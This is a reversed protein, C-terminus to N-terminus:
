LEPLLGGGGGECAYFDMSSYPTQLGWDLPYPGNQCTANGYVRVGVVESRDATAYYSTVLLSGQPPMPVAMSAGSSLAAAVVLAGLLKGRFAGSVGRGKM